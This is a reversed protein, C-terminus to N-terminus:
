DDDDMAQYDGRYTSRYTRIDDAWHDFVVCDGTLWLPTPSLAFTVHCPLSSARSTVTPGPSSMSVPTGPLDSKARQAGVPVVYPPVLPM